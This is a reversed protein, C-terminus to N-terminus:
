RAFVMDPACLPPTSPGLKPLRPITLPQRRRRSVRDVPPAYGTSSTRMGQRRPACARDVLHAHGTSSTRTGQRRPVCVRDAHPAYGTSAHRPVSVEALITEAGELEAASHHRSRSARSEGHGIRTVAMVEHRALLGRLRDCTAHGRHRRALQSSRKTVGGPDAPAESRRVRPRPWRERAQRPARSPHPSPM